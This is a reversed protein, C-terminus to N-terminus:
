TESRKLLEENPLVCHGGIAAMIPQLTPRVFEPHGLQTYGENYTQNALTYVEHFNLSHLDCFRKVRQAFEICVKYYTTDYLKMAETTRSSDFLMVRMGARRFYDAVASADKGGIFKVFTRLGGELDPHLGRCPSHIVGLEECTGLPVTSHVVVYRPTHEAIYGEVQEVFKESYPFCVHMIDCHQSTSTYGVAPDIYEPKYAALVKSLATGIEGMGVILTKTQM